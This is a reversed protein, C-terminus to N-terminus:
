IDHEILMESEFMEMLEEESFDGYQLMDKKFNEYCKAYDISEFILLDKMDTVETDM